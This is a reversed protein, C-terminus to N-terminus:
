ISFSVVRRYIRESLSNMKCNQLFLFVSEYNNPFLDFYSSITRKQAKFMKVLSKNKLNGTLFCTHTKKKRKSNVLEM